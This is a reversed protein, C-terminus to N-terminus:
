GLEKKKALPPTNGLYDKTDQALGHKALGYAVLRRLISYLMAFVPVGLVMGAFGFLGAILLISFLVCFSALGTSDSLIRSGLINGDLQQLVMIFVV